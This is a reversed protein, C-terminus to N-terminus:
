LTVYIFVSTAAAMPRCDFAFGVKLLTFRLLLALSFIHDELLVLIGLSFWSCINLKNCIVQDTSSSNCAYKAEILSRPSLHLAAALVSAIRM